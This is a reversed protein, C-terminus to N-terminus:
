EWGFGISRQVAQSWRKLKKERAAQEMNPTFTREIQIKNEVDSLSDWFKVHLGAAIAAGVGTIESEEKKMIEADLFDAQTQLLFNNATMGGDVSMKEVRKGSDKRMAEVVECTRLCPAELISRALHGKETNSGFGIWLGRADDRWYPSFIGQFAPVFYVDGCDEVSLALPELDKPSEIFGVKKNWQIAAGAIEVAGELAYQTNDGIKYCMTTLLGNTSQVPKSGVNQLLFCGTGYTNKVEGEKLVHGLCAAQQDGLVGSIPVGALGAAGDHNFTGFDGSSEQVIRPLQDTSIGYEKLMKDSWELTNIDMLMTRSANTSDTVLSKMGTLRAILYTDMTSLMAKPNSELGEVNQLLWKMKQASFYTNIPLGCDARYADVNGGNKQKMEEVVSATRSDHWVIANHLAQGTERDFAITTERQNTIGIAKVNASSLGNRSCVGELCALVNGFIEEPDHEVWGPKSSIQKHERAEVDVVKLDHDFVLVRSSTTGQDIALM